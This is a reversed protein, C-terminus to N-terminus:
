FKARLTRSHKLSLKQLFEIKSTTRRQKRSSVIWSTWTPMNQSTKNLLRSSNIEIQKLINETDAYVFLVTSFHFKYRAISKEYGRNRSRQRQQQEVRRSEILRITLPMIVAFSVFVVEVTNEQEVENLHTLRSSKARRPTKTAPHRQSVTNNLIDTHSSFDFVALGVKGVM